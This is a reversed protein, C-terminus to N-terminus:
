PVHDVLFQLAEIKRMMWHMVYQLVDTINARHATDNSCLM